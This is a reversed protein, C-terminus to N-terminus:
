TSGVAKRDGRPDVAKPPPNLRDICRTTLRHGLMVAILGERLSM